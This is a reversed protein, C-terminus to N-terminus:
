FGWWPVAELGNSWRGTSEMGIWGVGGGGVVVVVVVVVVGKNKELYAVAIPRYSLWLVM